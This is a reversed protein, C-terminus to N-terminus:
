WELEKVNRRRKKDSMTVTLAGNETLEAESFGGKKPFGIPNILADILRSPM